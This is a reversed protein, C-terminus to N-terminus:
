PRVTALGRRLGALVGKTGRYLLWTGQAVVGEAGGAERRWSADEDIGVWGSSFRHANGGASHAQPLDIGGNAMVTAAEAGLKSAVLALAAQPDACFEEYDLHVRASGARRAVVPAAATRALWMVADVGALLGTRAGLRPRRHTGADLRRRRLRARSYLAGRPDRVLHVVLLDIEPILCAALLSRIYKSTDVLGPADLNAGLSAYLAHLDLAYRRAAASPRMGLLARLLDPTSQWSELWTYGTQGLPADAWVECTGLDKGCGCHRAESRWRWAREVEGVFALGTSAAIARGVLTTGSRPAGQVLVIMM